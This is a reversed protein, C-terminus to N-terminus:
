TLHIQHSINDIRKQSFAKSVLMLLGSCIEESQLLTRYMYARKTPCYQTGCNVKEERTIFWVFLVDLNYNAKQEHHIFFVLEFRRLILKFYLNFKLAM